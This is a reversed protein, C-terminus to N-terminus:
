KGISVEEKYILIFNKNKKITKLSKSNYANGGFLYVVSYYSYRRCWVVNSVEMAELFLDDSEDRDLLHSAYLADHLIAANTYRGFSKLFGKSAGDHTFGKKVHYISGSKCRYFLDHQLKYRNDSIQKSDAYECVIFENKSEKYFGAKKPILNLYAFKDM